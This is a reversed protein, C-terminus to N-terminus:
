GEIYATVEPQSLMTLAVGGALATSLGGFLLGVVEVYSCIKMVPAANEPNTLGYIGSIVEFLGIPMLVLAVLGCIGGLGGLFFTCVALVGGITLWATCAMVTMTIVGSVIQLIAAQKIQPPPQSEYM